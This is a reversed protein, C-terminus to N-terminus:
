DRGVFDMRIFKFGAAAIMDLNETAGTIFHINVGVGNPITPTPVQGHTTVLSVAFACVISGIYNARNV